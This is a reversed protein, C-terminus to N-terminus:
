IKIKCEWIECFDLSNDDDTDCQALIDHYEVMDIGLDAQNVYGDNNLDRNIMWMRTEEEMDNCDKTGECECDTILAPCYISGYGPCNEERADNEVEIM